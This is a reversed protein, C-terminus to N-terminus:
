AGHRTAKGGTLAEWRAVIVDAYRPAIEIARCVRGLQECAILTSGSGAFPEYVLDGARTSNLLCRAVLEVPKSTPHDESRRPRPVQLVSSQADDGYWRSGEHRGRGSRGPGPTWGYLLPEHQFHYDSHGLVFVDKVWVLGEHVRWGLDRIALAFEVALPGAPHAVYYPAGPELVRGALAFAGRLLAPLEEAGDNEITLADTTKGVYEVGYPPDTWLCAAREGEMLRLVDTENTADGCLLRHRGLEWLDGPRSIADAPPDPATEDVLRGIADEAAQRKQARELDEFARNVSIEGTRLKAKVDESAEALLARSKTWTHLGVGAMDAMAQRTDIPEDCETAISPVLDTRLGQRAKAQERVDAELHAVLEVRQFPQLNRRGLQNRVIWRLAAARNALEVVATKFAIGYKECLRVRNHGDLVIGSGAWLLVADRCGESRLSEELLREEEPTLPPCLAAFEPDIIVSTAPAGSLASRDEPVDSRSAGRDAAHTASRAM